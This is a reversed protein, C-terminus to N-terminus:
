TKCNFRKVAELVEAAGQEGLEVIYEDSSAFQAPVWDLHNAMAAM